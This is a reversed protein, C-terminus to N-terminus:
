KDTPEITHVLLGEAKDWVIFKVANKKDQLSIIKLLGSNQDEIKVLLMSDSHYLDVNMSGIQINGEHHEKINGM